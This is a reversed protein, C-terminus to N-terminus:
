KALEHFHDLPALFGLLFLALGLFGFDLGVGVGLEDTVGAYVGVEGGEFVLDLAFKRLKLVDEVANYSVV